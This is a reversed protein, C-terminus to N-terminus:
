CKKLKLGKDTWKTAKRKRKSTTKFFDEADLFAIQRFYQNYAFQPGEILNGAFEECNSLVQKSEVMWAYRKTVSILVVKGKRMLYRMCSEFAAAVQIYELCEENWKMMIVKAVHPQKPEMTYDLSVSKEDDNWSLNLDVDLMKRGSEFDCMIGPMLDLEECGSDPQFPM